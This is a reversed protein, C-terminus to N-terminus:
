GTVCGVKDVCKGGMITIMQCADYVVICTSLALASLVPKGRISSGDDFGSISPEETGLVDFEAHLSVQREAFAVKWVM